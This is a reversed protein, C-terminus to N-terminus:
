FIDIDGTQESACANCDARYIELYKPNWGSHGCCQTWLMCNDISPVLSVLSWQALSGDRSERANTHRRIVWRPRAFFARTYQLISHSVPRVEGTGMLHETQLAVPCCRHFLFEFIDKTTSVPKLAM